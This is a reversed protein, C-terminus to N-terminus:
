YVFGGQTLNAATVIVVTHLSFTYLYKPHSTMIFVFNTLEYLIETFFESFVFPGDVTFSVPVLAVRVDPRGSRTPGRRSPSVTM